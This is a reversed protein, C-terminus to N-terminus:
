SEVLELLYLGGATGGAAILRGMTAVPGLPEVCPFRALPLGTTRESVRLGTADADVAMSTTPLSEAGGLMEVEGPRSSIQEGTRLDWELIVGDMGLSRVREGDRDVTMARVGIVPQEAFGMAAAFNDPSYWAEGMMPAHTHGRLTFQERGTQLDWVRLTNDQSASVLRDGAPTFAIQNIRDTHGCLSSRERGTSLDWTRIEGDASGSAVSGAEPGFTV